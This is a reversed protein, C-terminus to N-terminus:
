TNQGHAQALRKHRRRHWQEVRREPLQFHHPQKVGRDIVPSADASATAAAHQLSIAADKDDQKRFIAAYANNQGANAAEDNAARETLDEQRQRGYVQDQYSGQFYSENTNPDIELLIDRCEEVIYVHCEM